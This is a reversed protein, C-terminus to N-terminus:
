RSHVKVPAYRWGVGITKGCVHDHRALGFSINVWVILSGGREPIVVMRHVM